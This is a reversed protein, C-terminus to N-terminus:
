PACAETGVCDDPQNGSVSSEADLTVEGGDSYIGGASVAAINNIVHSNVLHLASFTEVWVGAASQAHNGEVTCNTLTATGNSLYLGGGDTLATNNLIASDRVTLTGLNAQFIGAGFQGTNERIVSDSIDLAGYARIGGSLGVQATGNGIVTCHKMTVQSEFGLDVGRLPAGMLRLGQLTVNANDFVFICTGNSNNLNAADIVTGNLGDGDGILSM